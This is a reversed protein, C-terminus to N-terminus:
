PLRRAVRAAVEVRLTVHEAAPVMFADPSPAILDSSKYTPRMLGHEDHGRGTVLYHGLEHAAVRGSARATLRDQLDKPCANFPVNRFRTKALLVRINIQSVFIIPVPSQLGDATVWGLVPRSDRQLDASVIRLSVTASGAPVPDGYRGWTLRVGAARWITEIEDLLTVLQQQSLRGDRDVRVHVAPAARLDANLDASTLLALLIWAAM